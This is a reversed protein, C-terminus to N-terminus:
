DLRQSISEKLTVALRDTYPLCRYALLLQEQELEPRDLVAAANAAGLHAHAEDWTDGLEHFQRAAQLQFAVAEDARQMHLLVDGTCQLAMAERSRDGIQRQLSAALQCSLMAEATDGLDLQIRAAEVLWFGEWMKNHADDAISLAEDIAAKARDLNGGLRCARALLWLTNGHMATDGLREFLPLVAEIDVLAGSANGAAMKAEALNSRCVGQWRVDDLDAFAATAAAFLETATDLDRMRLCVLGLSNTSEAAGRRNNAQEHLRQAETFDIRAERYQGRRLLYKGRNEHAVAVYRSAGSAASRLGILTMQSWDDFYFYNMYIPSPALALTCAQEAMGSSEALRAIAMLNQREADFWALADDASSFTASDVDAAASLDAILRDDPALLASANDASRAYWWCMRELTSRRGAESDHAQSEANAYARLLDHMQFRSGAAHELLFAGVLVDAFRRADRTSTGMVAAITPLSIDPGPHMGIIRFMRAAQEPLSRYSWAFVTRVDDVETGDEVSLAEWLGSADRLDEILDVLPMAPRSAAREAAIRLALPLRACLRVLEALDAENDNSRERKIAETVLAVADGQPLVDVQVHGVGDHVALSRLRSRSTVVLLPGAAGPILPRIQSAHSANDLLILLRRGAILSRFLATRDDLQFPIREPPVGLDRLMRELVYVAPVPQDTSYGRLNVFLDGDSFHQRIRHLWHLALATKGVGASGAIVVVVHPQDDSSLAVLQELGAIERVRNVFGRGPAPLQKPVLQHSSHREPEAHIHIGGHVNRAQVVNGSVTDADVRNDQERGDDVGRGPAPEGDAM